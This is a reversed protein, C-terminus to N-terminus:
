EDVEDEPLEIDEMMSMYEILMRQRQQDAITNEFKSKELPSMTNRIYGIM